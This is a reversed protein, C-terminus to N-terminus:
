YMYKVAWKLTQVHGYVFQLSENLFLSIQCLKSVTSKGKELNHHVKSKYRTYKAAKM